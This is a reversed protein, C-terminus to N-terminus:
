SHPRTERLLTKLYDFAMRYIGRRSSERPGAINLTRINNDAIWQAAERSDVPELLNVMLLPRRHMDRAFKVTELTGNQLEGWYVILTGDSDRVNWETRQRYDRKPTEELPYRDGIVGDEARRGKPCWGGVAIGAAMAADLAARDVGTQGGSVVKRPSTM